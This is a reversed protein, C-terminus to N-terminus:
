FSSNPLMLFKKEVETSQRGLIDNRHPFRGFKEIIDMHRKAYLLAHSDSSSMQVSLKQDDLNESHMLPMYLFQRYELDLKLDQGKDISSKTIFLAKSDTAFSQALGRFMNRPLQDLVIVLSLSGQASEMWHDLLGDAALQYLNFFKKIILKDFDRDKEFWKRKNEQKFWFELIGQFETGM